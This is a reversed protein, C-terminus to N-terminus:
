GAIRLIDSSSITTNSFCSGHIEGLSLDAAHRGAAGTAGGEAVTGIKGERAQHGGFRAPCDSWIERNGAPRVAPAAPCPRFSRGPQM